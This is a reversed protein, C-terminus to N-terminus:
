PSDVGRTGVFPCRGRTRARRRRRTVTERAPQIEAARVLEKILLARLRNLALADSGDDPGAGAGRKMADRHLRLADM